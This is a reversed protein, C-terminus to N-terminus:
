VNVKTCLINNYTQASPLIHRVKSKAGKSDSLEMAAGYLKVELQARALRHRMLLVQFGGSKDGDSSAVLVQEILHENWQAKILLLVDHRDIRKILCAPVVVTTKL